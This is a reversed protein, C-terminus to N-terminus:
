GRLRRLAELNKIDLPDRVIARPNDRDFGVLRDFDSFTKEYGRERDRHRIGVRNSPLHRSVRRHSRQRM